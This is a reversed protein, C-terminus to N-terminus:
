SPYPDLHGTVWTGSLALLRPSIQFCTSLKPHSYPLPLRLRNPIMSQTVLYCLYDPSVPNTAAGKDKTIAKGDPLSDVLSATEQTNGGVRITVGGARQKINGMLNLFPVQIFSSSLINAALKHLQFNNLERTSVLQM